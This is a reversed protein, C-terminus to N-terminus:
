AAGGSTNATVIAALLKIAQGETFGAGIYANFMEHHLAAEAALETLPPQPNDPM